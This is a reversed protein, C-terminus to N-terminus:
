ARKRGAVTMAAVDYAMVMEVIRVAALPASSKRDFPFQHRACADNGVYEMNGSIEMTDGMEIHGNLADNLYTKVNGSQIKTSEFLIYRQDTM